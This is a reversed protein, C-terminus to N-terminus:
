ETAADEAEHDFWLFPTIKQTITAMVKEGGERTMRSDTLQRVM